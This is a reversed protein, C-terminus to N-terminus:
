VPTVMWIGLTVSFGIAALGIWISPKHSQGARVLIAGFLGIMLSSDYLPRLLESQAELLMPLKALVLGALGVNLCFYGFLVLQPGLSAELMARRLGEFAALLTLCLLPVMIVLALFM